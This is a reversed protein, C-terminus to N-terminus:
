SIVTDVSFSSKFCSNSAKVALKSVSERPEFTGLVFIRHLNDEVILGNVSWSTSNPPGTVLPNDGIIRSLVNFPAFLTPNLSEGSSTMSKNPSPSPFNFNWSIHSVVDAVLSALVVSFLEASFGNRPNQPVTMGFFLILVMELTYLELFVWVNPNTQDTM